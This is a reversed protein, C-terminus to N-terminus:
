DAANENSFLVDFVQHEAKRLHQSFTAPAIDLSTAVDEGSAARPWEFFGSHYATQLTERQRDTLKEVIHRHLSDVHAAPRTIQQRRIMEAEPYNEEVVDILRRVEVTPALHTILTVDGDEIVLDDVYGGLDTIVSLVPPESLRLEFNTPEGESRVTMDVCYPIVEVFEGLADMADPTVTGYVVFEGESRPAAHDLTITGHMETEVGLSRLFDRMQFELEVLEDSMMARKREAASIAHGIVEGLQALLQAEKGEFADPREAYVNLVGYVSENHIIPIAASSRFEHAEASERWPEYRPENPINQITQMEGTLFAQGTPGDSREDDPDISIRIDDLYGGDGAESRVTVTETASDAEGIWAFRYSDADALHECVTSEIEARTSRDIVSNTIETVVEQISNVAELQSRYRDLAREARKRETIDMTIGPFAIANGDEDSHVVGRGRVWRREDFADIVRYEEDYTGCEAIAEEIGDRVRDRDAEHILATYQELDIGERATEGDLDFKEAFWRDMVLRDEPVHYEWTGVEGADTAAELQTKVERLSRVREKRETVDQAVVMGTSIEADGVPLFELQLTRNDYEIELSRREGDLAAELCPEIPEVLAEPDHEYFTQGIATEADVDFRELLEGGTAIYRLDEDYLTVAGNPFNEVLTRYRLEREELMREREFRESVDRVVGVKRAHTGSDSPLVAFNSEARLRSGDARHIDSELRADELDGAAIRETMTTAEDSVEDDIVLSCHAGLLEERDYGTMEVYADNVTDFCYAEDLVYVGDDMVDVITEYLELEEEREKRETIDWLMGASGRFRGEDDTLVSIRNELPIWEGDVNQGDFEVAITEDTDNELVDAIRNEVMSIAADDMGISVHQGLLEAEDFGTFETFAENVFVFNGDGDLEYVPEGIADVIGVYRELQQEHEKRDTVDRFYVSLGSESPYANIEFWTDLPGPYYVEFVTSEQTEMAREYETRIKSDAAWEFTEWVHKGVLGEGTFDILEMAHENAHTFRWEDDIAYFADTIRDLLEHLEGELDDRQRELQKAQAKLQSVNEITVLIREVDGDDDFLPEVNTSLWRRGGTSLEIQGLWNRVPEGTEFANVYPREAPALLEGDEDYVDNIGVAYTGDPQHELELLDIARENATTFTGDEEVTLVGVPATELIRQTFDRQARLQAEHEHRDTMDRTVKAFGELDGDDDHISTITVNAWFQSGDARVRWGEDEVSGQETAVALNQEPVGADCDDETYFTSIHEGLVATAEYGKIQEAGPNWTRVYGDSDLTFIAYEDVAEILQKFQEADANAPRHATTEETDGDVRDGSPRWWVRANAGVKKTDLLDRDVLQDLRDYTSRRGLDLDAAVEPTTRPERSDDFVSLTEALRSPLSASQM